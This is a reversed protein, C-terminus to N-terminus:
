TRTAIMKGSFDASGSDDKAKWSGDTGDCYVALKRYYDAEPTGDQENWAACRCNYIHCSIIFNDLM